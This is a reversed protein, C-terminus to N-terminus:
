PRVSGYSTISIPFDSFVGPMKYFLDQHINNQRLKDIHEFVTINHQDHLLANLRVSKSIYKFITIVWTFNM